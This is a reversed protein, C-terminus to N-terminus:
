STQTRTGTYGRTNANATINTTLQNSTKEWKRRRKLHVTTKYKKKSM